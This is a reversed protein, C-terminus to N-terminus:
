SADMVQCLVSSHSQIALISVCVCVCMKLMKGMNLKGGYPNNHSVSYMGKKDCM